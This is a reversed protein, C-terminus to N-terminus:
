VSQFVNCMFSPTLWPHGREGIKAVSTRWLISLGRASDNSSRARVRCDCPILPSSPWLLMDCRNAYMSSMDAVTGSSSMDKKQVSSSHMPVGRPHKTFGKLVLIRVDVDPVLM